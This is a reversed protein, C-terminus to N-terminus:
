TIRIRWEDQAFAYFEHWRYFGASEGGALMFNKTPSQAIDNVFNSINVPQGPLTPPSVYNLNGRTNLIGLLRADTRRLEVGFKMSHSDTVYSFADTIQYTDHERFGPLTPPFGLTLRAVQNSPVIGLGVISMAPITKSLPFEADNRVSFQVWALRADNSSRNTLVSNLVIALASSRTENVTTLGPPTVQGGGSSDQSDFRYRVYFLNKENFRHDLRLSGQHDDFVFLSSGTFDGLEM